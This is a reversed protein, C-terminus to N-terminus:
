NKINLNHFLPKFSRTLSESTKNSLSDANKLSNRSHGIVFVNKLCDCFLTILLNARNQDSSYVDINIESDSSYVKIGTNWHYYTVRSCLLLRLPFIRDDNVRGSTTGFRYSIRQEASCLPLYESFFNTVLSNQPEMSKWLLFFLVTTFRRYGLVARNGVNKLIDEKTNLLVFFKM